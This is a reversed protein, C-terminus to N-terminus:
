RQQRCFMSDALSRPSFMVRQQRAFGKTWSLCVTGYGKSCNSSVHKCMHAALPWLVCCQLALVGSPMGVLSRGVQQRMSPSMVLETAASELPLEATTRQMASSGFSSVAGGNSVADPGQLVVAPDRLTVCTINLFDVCWKGEVHQAAAIRAHTRLLCCRMLTARQGAATHM